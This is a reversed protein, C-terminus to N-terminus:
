KKILKYITYGDSQKQGIKFPICNVIALWLNFTIMLQLMIETQVFYYILSLILALFGNIFPGSAAIHVKEKATFPIQRSSKTQYNVFLFSHFKLKIKWLKFSVHRKGNGIIVQVDKADYLSATLAHGLEHLVLSMPALLLIFIIVEIFFM